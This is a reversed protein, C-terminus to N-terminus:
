IPIMQLEYFLIQIGNRCKYKNYSSSTKYKRINHRKMVYKKEDRFAIYIKQHMLEPSAGSHVMRMPRGYFMYRM